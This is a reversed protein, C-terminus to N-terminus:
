VQRRKEKFTAVTELFALLQGKVQEESFERADGMDSQLFMVPLDTFTQLQRRQFMRGVSATRCTRVNHIVVGDIHYEDILGRLPGFRAVLMQTPTMGSLATRRDGLDLREYIRRVIREIPDSCKTQLPPNYAHFYYDTEMVFAAGMPELYNLIQMSHWPPLGVFLLRYKENSLVGQKSAVKAKIEDRLQRYLGQAQKNGSLYLGPILCSFMDSSAMPSPVAKRLEYCEHWLNCTEQHTEVIEDLRDLDLKKGTQSSLFDALRRYEGIQYQIHAERREPSLGPPPSLFDYSFYPAKVYRALTQYWKYRPECHRSSAIMMDPDPMGGDPAEPPVVGTKDKISCFGIGITAYSCLYRSYGEAVAEDIFGQAVRKAACLAGYNETYVPVVDFADLLEAQGRLGVMLYAIPIGNKKAENARNYLQEKQLRRMAKAIESTKTATTKDM